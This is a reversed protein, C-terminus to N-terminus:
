IVNSARDVEVTVHTSKNIVMGRGDRNGEEGRLNNDAGSITSRNGVWIETENRSIKDIPRFNSDATLMTPQQSTVALNLIDSSTSSGPSHMHNEKPSDLANHEPADSITEKSQKSSRRSPLPQMLYGESQWSNRRLNDSAGGKLTHEPVHASAQGYESKNTYYSPSYDSKFPRLFPGISTITSSMIAYGMQWQTAVIHEFTVTTGLFHKHLYYLRVAAIAVVPLRASFAFIVFLKAKMRM